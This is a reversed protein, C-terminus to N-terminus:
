IQIYSNCNTHRCEAIIMVHSIARQCEIAAATWFSRSETTLQGPLEGCVTSTNHSVMINLNATSKNCTFYM